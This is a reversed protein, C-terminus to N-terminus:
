LKIYFGAFKTPQMNLHPAGEGAKPIAHKHAGASQTTRDINRYTGASGSGNPNGGNSTVSSDPYQHTHAGAEGVEGGHDHEALQAVTLAVRAVGATAGLTNGDADGEVLDAPIIGSDTSGFATFAAPARGRWDPLAIRKNASWDGTPTAGRGGSVALTTDVVWLFEYLDQCDENARETAGSAANGITRGNARVWGDHPGASHRFKYDGTRFGEDTGGGGGGGGSSGTGPASVGDAEWLTVGEATQIRLRYAGSPLFVPPFIGSYNAVVPHAHPIDLGADTYITRPTTTGADFFFARMGSYPRGSPDLLPAPYPNWLATM